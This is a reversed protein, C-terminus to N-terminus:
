TCVDIPVEPTDENEPEILVSNKAKQFQGDQEVRIMIGMEVATTLFLHIRGDLYQVATQAEHANLGDIDKKIGFSEHAFRLREITFAGKGVIMNAIQLLQRVTRETMQRRLPSNLPIGRIMSSQHLRGHTKVIQEAAESLRCHYTVCTGSLSRSGEILYGRGILDNVMRAHDPIGGLWLCIEQKSAFSIRRQWFNNAIVRLVRQEVHNLESTSM